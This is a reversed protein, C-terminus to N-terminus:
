TARGHLSSWSQRRPTVGNSIVVSKWYDKVVMMFKTIEVRDNNELTVVFTPENTRKKTIIAGDPHVYVDYNTTRGRDIKKTRDPQLAGNMRRLKFHKASNAIDAAATIYLNAPWTAFLNKKDDKTIVGLMEAIHDHMSHSTICFNYFHDSKHTLNKHHFTRVFERELKKFLAEASNLRPTLTM